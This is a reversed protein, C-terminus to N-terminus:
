LLIISTSNVIGSETSMICAKFTANDENRVVFGHGPVVYIGELQKKIQGITPYPTDHSSMGGITALLVKVERCVSLSKKDVEKFGVTSGPPLECNLRTFMNAELTNLPVSSDCKVTLISERGDDKVRRLYRLTESSTKGVVPNWRAYNAKAHETTSSGRITLAYDCGSLDNQVLVNEQTAEVIAPPSPLGGTAPTFSADWTASVVAELRAVRELLANFQEISVSM